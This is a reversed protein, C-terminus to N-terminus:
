NTLYEFCEIDHDKCPSHTETMMKCYTEFDIGKDESIGHEKLLKLYYEHDYKEGLIKQLDNLSILSDQNLDWMDFTEKLVQSSNKFQLDVM